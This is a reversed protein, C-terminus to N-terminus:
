PIAGYAHKCGKTYKSSKFKQVSFHFQIVQFLIFSGKTIFAVKNM